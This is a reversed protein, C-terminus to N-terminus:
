GNTKPSNGKAAVQKSFSLQRKYCCIVSDQIGNAATRHSSFYQKAGFERIGRFLRPSLSSPLFQCTCLTKSKWCVCCIEINEFAIM